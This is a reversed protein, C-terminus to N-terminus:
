VTSRRSAAVYLWALGFMGIALLALTSPEPVATPQNLNFAFGHFSATGDAGAEIFVTNKPFGDAILADLASGSLMVPTVSQRGKAFSSSQTFNVAGEFDSPSTTSSCDATGYDCFVVTRSGPAGSQLGGHLVSDASAVSPLAAAIMAVLLRVMVKITGLVNLNM